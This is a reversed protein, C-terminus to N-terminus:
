EWETSGLCSGIGALFADAEHIPVCMWAINKHLVSADQPVFPEFLHLIELETLVDTLQRKLQEISADRSFVVLGCFHSEHSLLKPSTRDFYYLYQGCVFM